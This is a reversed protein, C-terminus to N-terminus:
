KKLSRIHALDLVGKAGWGKEGEPVEPRFAEYLAYARSALERPPLSDALDELAKQVAPLDDGFKQKLYREVSEANIPEGKASARVGHETHVAPVLRGLVEITLTEGTKAKAKSKDEQQDEAKTDPYIGLRRGKSQANLGAVAKALTLATAHGYGMRESVITAWLTLVPARNIKIKHDTKDAM